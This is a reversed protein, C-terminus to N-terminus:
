EPQQDDPRTPNGSSDEAPTPPASPDVAPDPDEGTMKELRETAARVKEKLFDIRKQHPAAVEAIRAQRSAKLERAYKKMAELRRKAAGPDNKYRARLRDHSELQFLRFRLRQADRRDAQERAKAIIDELDDLESQYYRRTAEARTRYNKKGFWEPIISEGEALDDSPPPAGHGDTEMQRAVRQLVSAAKGYAGGVAGTFTADTRGSAEGQREREIAEADRLRRRAEALRAQHLRWAMARAFFRKQQPTLTDAFGEVREIYAEAKKLADDISAMQRARLKKRRYASASDSATMEALDREFLDALSAWDTGKIGEPRKGSRLAEALAAVNDALKKEPSPGAAGARAGSTMHGLGAETLAADLAEEGLPIDVKPGPTKRTVPSGGNELVARVKDRIAERSEGSKIADAVPGWRNNFSGWRGANAGAEARDARGIQRRMEDARARMRDLMRKSAQPSPNTKIDGFKVGSLRDVKERQAKLDPSEGRVTPANVDPTGSNDKQRNRLEADHREPKKKDNWAGSLTDLLGRPGSKPPQTKPPTEPPTEPPPEGPPNNHNDAFVATSATLAAAALLWTFARNKRQRTRM